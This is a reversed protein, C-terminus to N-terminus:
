RIVGAPDFSASITFSDTGPAGTSSAGRTSSQLTVNSLWPLLSLRDIVLAVRDHSSASGSVTFGAPATAAGSTTGTSGQAPTAIPAPVGVQVTQLQVKSPLVRALDRLLNEWPVRRDSIAKVVGLKAASASAAARLPAAKAQEAALESQVASLTDQRDNVVSREHVYLGGLVLLACAAIAGAVALVRRAQLEKGVTAWRHAPRAYAPLLNVAEM